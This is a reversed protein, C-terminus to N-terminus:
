TLLDDPTSSGNIPKVCLRDKSTTIAVYVTEDGGKDPHHKLSLKRFASKCEQYTVNASIGLISQAHKSLKPNLQNDEICIKLSLDKCFEPGKDAGFLTFYGEKEFRIFEDKFINQHCIESEINNKICEDLKMQRLAPLEQLYHPIRQFIEIGKPISNIADVLQKGSYLTNTGLIVADRIPRATEIHRYKWAKTIGQVAGHGVVYTRWAPALVNLGPVFSLAMTGIVAARGMLSKTNKLIMMTPIVNAAWSLITLASAINGECYGVICSAAIGAFMLTQMHDLKMQDQANARTRALGAMITIPSLGLQNVQSYDMGREILYQASFLEIKTMAYHLATSGQKDTANLNAGAQLLHQIVKRSNGTAAIHLPSLGNAITVFDTRAGKTLLLKVLDANGSKTALHLLSWGDATTTNVDLNRELLESILTLNGNAAAEFAGILSTPEPTCRQSVSRAFEIEKQFETYSLKRSFHEAVEDYKLGLKRTYKLGLKCDVIIKIMRADESIIAHDLPTLGHSDVSDLMTLNRGAVWEAIDHGGQRIAYNLPNEGNPLLQNILTKDEVILNKLDSLSNSNIANQLKSSTSIADQNTNWNTIWNNSLIKNIYM